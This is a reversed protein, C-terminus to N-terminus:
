FTVFRAGFALPRTVGLYILQNLRLKVQKALRVHDSVYGPNRKNAVTLELTGTVPAQSQNQIGCPCGCLPISPLRDVVSNELISDSFSLIIIVELVGSTFRCAILRRTKPYTYHTFSSGHKYLVSGNQCSLYDLYTPFMVKTPTKRRADHIRRICTGQTEELAHLQFSTFHNTVLGYEPQPCVIHEYFRSLIKFFDSPNVGISSLM